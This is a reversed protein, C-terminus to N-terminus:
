REFYRSLPPLFALALVAGDLLAAITFLTVEWPFWIVIGALLTGIASLVYAAALLLRGWWMFFYLGIAAILWMPQVVYYIALTAAPWIGGVEAFRMALTPESIPLGIYPWVFLVIGIATSAIIMSQFLRVLGRGSIAAEANVDAILAGPPLYPNRLSFRSRTPPPDPEKPAPTPLGRLNMEAQLIHRADSVLESEWIRTLEDDTLRNYLERLHDRDVM